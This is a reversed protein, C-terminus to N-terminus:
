LAGVSACRRWCGRATISKGGLGMTGNHSMLRPRLCFLRGVRHGLVSVIVGALIWFLPKESNRRPSASM